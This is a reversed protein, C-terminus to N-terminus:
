NGMLAYLITSTLLYKPIICGHFPPFAAGFVSALGSIVPFFFMISLLFGLELIFIVFIVFQYCAPFHHGLLVIDWINCCNM